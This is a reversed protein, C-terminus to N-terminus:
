LKGAGPERLYYALNGGEIERKTRGNGFFTFRNSSFYTIEYDEWRPNLMIELYHLSSGPWPGWVKGDRKGNKYRYCGYTLDYRRRCIQVNVRSVM